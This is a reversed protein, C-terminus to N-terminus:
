TFYRKIIGAATFDRGPWLSPRALKEHDDKEEDVQPHADAGSKRTGTSVFYIANETGVIAIIILAAVISLGIVICGCELLWSRHGHGRNPVPSSDFERERWKEHRANAERKRLFELDCLDKSGFRNGLSLDGL